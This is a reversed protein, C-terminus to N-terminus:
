KEVNSIMDVRKQHRGGEFPTKLWIDAIRKALEPELIRGGLALVNANNHKRSMEAMYESTCNAARIGRIKNAVISVGIGTGCIIIGRNVEGKAVARATKEAYFPYDVSETSNTGYDILEINGLAQIHKKIIEKLEFGGHDCSIAIKEM